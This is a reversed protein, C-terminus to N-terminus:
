KICLAFGSWSSGDLWVMKKWKLEEVMYKKDVTSFPFVPRFM